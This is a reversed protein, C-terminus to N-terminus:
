DMHNSLSVVQSSEHPISAQPRPHLQLAGRLLVVEKDGLDSGGAMGWSHLYSSITSSMPRWEGGTKSFWELKGTEGVRGEM